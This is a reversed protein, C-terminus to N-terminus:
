ASVRSKKQATIVTYFLTLEAGTLAYREKTEDDARGICEQLMESTVGFYEGKDEVLAQYTKRYGVTKMRSIGFGSTELLRKMESPKYHRAHAKSLTRELKEFFGQNDSEHVSLDGYILTGEEKLVGSFGQLVKGQSEFYHMTSMCVIADFSEHMFPLHEADGLVSDLNRKLSSMKVRALQLMERSLDLGVFQPKTKELLPLANRGTGVGVELLLKNEFGTLADLLEDTVENGFGHSTKWTRSKQRDYDRSRKAYYEQIIRKRAISSM